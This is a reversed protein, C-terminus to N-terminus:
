PVTPGSSSSSMSSSSLRAVWYRRVTCRQAGQATSNIVTFNANKYNDDGHTTSNKSAELIRLNEFFRENNFPQRFHDENNKRFRGTPPRHPRLPGDTLNARRWRVFLEDDEGGWGEFRNSMGGVLDWHARSAVFVGGSFSPYRLAWGHHEPEWSLHTPVACRDYRIGPEPLLDVDHVAVCDGPASSLLRLGVNFLWGRNFPGDDAQEVVVVDDAFAGCVHAVFTQLQQERNMLPVIITARPAPRVLARKECLENRMTALIAILFVCCILIARARELLM